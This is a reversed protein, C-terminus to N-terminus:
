KEGLLQDSAVSCPRIPEVIYRWGHGSHEPELNECFASAEDHTAFAAMVHNDDHTDLVKFGAPRNPDTM